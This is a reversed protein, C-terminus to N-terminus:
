STETVTYEFTAVWAKPRTVKGTAQGFMRRGSPDRYCCVGPTLFFAELEEPTSGGVVSGVTASGTVVLSGITGYLGIPRKRGSAMVLAQNMSPTADFTLDGGFSIGDAFGDGHSLFAWFQETAVLDVEVPVCEAGDASTTVVDYTNTGNITPTTDLISLSASAPWSSLVTETVGNITRTISVSVPPATVGGGDPITVDVQAFGNDQLYTVVVTPTTPDLYNVTFAATVAASTMGDSDLVTVSLSYSGGDALRTAMLTGALTMTTVTEVVTGADKLVITASVATAGEAQSFGLVVTLSSGTLVAGSAPSVISAVPATKFTVTKTTSFPSAGTGDSGGTTASGWTRVRVMVAANAAYTSAPITFSSTTSTTKGSTSWTTGGDTSRQFEYATQPTTDTPNHTWGIALAVTKDAFGPVTGLTPANPPALLQVSNSMVAASTLAGTDTNKATVRYVHVQSTNPSTHTYSTTGAAVTALPSADWTTTGGSVVGHEIVHQHEAFAVNDTFSVVINGSADKAASVGTPAAPTTFIANSSASFASSGASNSASVQYVTKTNPATSLSVSTGAAISTGSDFAGDNISRRITNTTPDGNSAGNNTWTAKAQTDSVRTASVGTPTGPAVHLAPLSLSASVSTPGGLGITGTAGMTFTENVTTADGNADLTVTTTANLVTVTEDGSLNFTGSAGWAQVSWSAGNVFTESSTCAIQAVARIVYTRTSANSSVISLTLILTGNSGTAKSAM